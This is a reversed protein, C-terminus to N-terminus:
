HPRFCPTRQVDGLGGPPWFLGHQQDAKCFSLGAGGVAPHADGPVFAVQM